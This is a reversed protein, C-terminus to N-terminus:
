SAQRIDSLFSEVSKRLREEESQLAEADSRIRVAVNGTLQAARSVGAINRSVDQTGTTAEQVNMAIENTAAGQQEVSAAIDGSIKNIEEITHSIERIAEVAGDTEGQVQQIQAVIEETAKSTQTALEKVEAAVVAFGKGAEGARAAEITANLALLNTQEAIDNILKVVQGIRSAASSLGEIRANTQQAQTVASEAIDASSRVQRSIESVSASLEEAAAAVTGVNSSAEESAAAVATSQHSTDEAAGTLEGAAANLNVVSHSVSQLLQAVSADFDATLRAVTEARAIRRHQEKEQEASLEEARAAQDRFVELAKGIRGIEDARRATDIEVSYHGDILSQIHGLTLEVPRRIVRQGVIYLAAAVTVLLVLGVGVIWAVITNSAVLLSSLPVTVLVSWTQGTEGIKVPIIMRQVGEGLAESWGAYDIARGERVAKQGSDLGTERAADFADAFPKGILDTDPHAVWTGQQSVLSVQGTGLPRITALQESFGTAFVDIGAVGLVKGDNMIPASMSVGIAMADGVPWTYPETAFVKGTRYTRSFWEKDAADSVKGSSDTVEGTPREGFSGDPNRFVYPRWQGTADHMNDASAFEANRGDLDDTVVVGWAGSLNKEGKMTERIIATWANRDVDGSAKLASMSAAMGKTITLGAELQRRISQAEREGVARAEGVAIDRAIRASQWAIVSIGCFLTVILVISSTIVLKVTISANKLMPVVLKVHM